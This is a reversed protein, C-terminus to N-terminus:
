RHLANPLIWKRKLNLILQMKM